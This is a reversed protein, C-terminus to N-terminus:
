MLWDLHVEAQTDTHLWLKKRCHPMPNRPIHLHDADVFMDVTGKLGQSETKGEDFDLLEFL